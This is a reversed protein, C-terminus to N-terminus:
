SYAEPQTRATRYQARSTTHSLAGHTSVALLVTWRHRLGSAAKHTFAVMATREVKREADHSAVQKTRTTKVLACVLNPGNCDTKGCHPHLLLIFVVFLHNVSDVTQLM